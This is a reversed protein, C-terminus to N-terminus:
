CYPMVHWVEFVVIDKKFYKEKTFVKKELSKGGSAGSQKREIKMEPAVAVVGMSAHVPTLFWYQTQSKLSLMEFALCFKLLSTSFLKHKCEPVLIVSDVNTTILIVSFMGELRYNKKFPV